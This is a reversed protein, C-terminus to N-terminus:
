LTDNDENENTNAPQGRAGHRKSFVYSGPFQASRSCASETQIMSESRSPVKAQIEYSSNVQRFNLGLIIRASKESGFSYM